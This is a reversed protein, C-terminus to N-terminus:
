RHGKKGYRYDEWHSQASQIDKQQRRKTGGGLLIVLTAGDLGFYIRYGPGFNLKYEHVGAGVGEVNSVNGLRLRDLAVSKKAAAIPDLATFWEGFPSREDKTIYERVEM